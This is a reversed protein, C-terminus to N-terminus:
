PLNASSPSEKLIWAYEGKVNAQPYPPLVSNGDKFTTPTKIVTIILDYKSKFLLPM